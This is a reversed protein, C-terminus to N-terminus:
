GLRKRTMARQMDRKAEREKVTDRKDVKAKGSVLAIEVKITGRDNFYMALPVLTYGKSDTAVAFQRIQARHALLKRKRKPEHQDVSSAHDYKGVDANYLYLEQGGEVRAFAEDLSVRGHRIAKVETGVLAIGCELTEHIHYEHRAKRNVIRPALTRDQKRKSKAM